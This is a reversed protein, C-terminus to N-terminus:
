SKNKSFAGKQDLQLQKSTAQIILEEVASVSAVLCTFTILLTAHAQTYLFPFVFLVIGTVKNGYTHISAYTKYKRLAVIISALRIIGIMIIWIIVGTSLQVVPYLMFLLVVVFLTDALSDLRAGFSSTTGTKRAILGDLVDSLGCIMYLVFFATSLPEFFLLMLALCIRSYSLFNAM